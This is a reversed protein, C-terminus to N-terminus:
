PHISGSIKDHGYYRARLHVITSASYFKRRRERSAVNRKGRQEHIGSKESANQKENKEREKLPSFFPFDNVEAIFILTQIILDFNVCKYDQMIRKSAAIERPDNPSGEM